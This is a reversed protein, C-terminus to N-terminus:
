KNNRFLSKETLVLFEMGLKKAYEKAAKFKAENVLFTRKREIMTKNSKGGKKLPMRTDKEPKVEIIFNRGNRFKAWFDPYYIRSKGMKEDLVGYTKGQTPDIYPIRISENSWEIVDQNFDLWQAFKYEWSSRMILPYMGTYKNPYKPIYERENKNRKYKKM